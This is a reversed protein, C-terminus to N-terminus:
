AQGFVALFIESQYSIITWDRFFLDPIMPRRAFATHNKNEAVLRANRQGNFRIVWKRDSKKKNKKSSIM